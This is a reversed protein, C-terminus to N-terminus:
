NVARMLQKVVEVDAPCFEYNKLQNIQVWRANNHVNLMMGGGNIRVFFTTLEISGKEYYYINKMFLGSVEIDLNLEEKIERIICEQATENENIKGGPFEWKLALRDNKARQTILVKEENRIVAAVVRMM